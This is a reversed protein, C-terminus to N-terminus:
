SGIHVEYWAWSLTCLSPVRSGEANLTYTCSLDRFNVGFLRGGVLNVHSSNRVVRNKTIGPGHSDLHLIM